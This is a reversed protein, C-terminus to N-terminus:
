RELKRMTAADVRPPSPHLVIYDKGAPATVKADTYVNLVRTLSETFKFRFDRMRSYGAGFQNYLQEWSVHIPKGRQGPLRHLRYCLWVYIDIALTSSGLVRLDDIYIPMPDAKIQEYFSDTLIIESGWLSEETDGGDRNFWLQLGKAVSADIKRYGQGTTNSGIEFLAIHCMALEEIRSAVRGIQKSGKALGLRQFFDRQSRGLEIEQKQHRFAETTIYAMAARPAVGYPIGLRHMQGKIDPRKGPTISLLHNGNRVTWEDIDGPNRHPFSFRAWLPSTFMLEGLEDGREVQAEQIKLLQKTENPNRPLTSFDGDDFLSLQGNM